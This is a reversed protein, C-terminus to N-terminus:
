HVEDRCSPEEAAFRAAARCLLLVALVLKRMILGAIMADLGQGRRHGQGGVKIGLDDVAENTISSTLPRAASTSASM